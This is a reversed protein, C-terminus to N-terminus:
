STWAMYGLTFTASATINGSTPNLFSATITDEGTVSAATLVMTGQDSPSLVMAMIKADADLGSITATSEAVSSAAASPCIIDVTGFMLKSVYDGTKGIQMGGTGLIKRRVKFSPM